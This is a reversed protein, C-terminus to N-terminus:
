FTALTLTAENTPALSGHPASLSPWPRRRVRQRCSSCIRPPPSTPLSPPGTPTPIPSRHSSFTRPPSSSPSSPSLVSHAPLPITSALPDPFCSSFPVHISLSVRPSALAVRCRILLFSRPPVGVHVDHRSSPGILCESRWPPLHEMKRNERKIDGYLAAVCAADHRRLAGRRGTRRDTQGGADSNRAGAEACTWGDRPTVIIRLSTRAARRCGHCCAAARAAAKM